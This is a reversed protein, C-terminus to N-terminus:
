QVRKSLSASRAVEIEYERIGRPDSSVLEWVLRVTRTVTQLSMRSQSEVAVWSRSLHSEVAVWTQRLSDLLVHSEIDGLFFHRSCPTLVLLCIGTEGHDDAKTILIGNIFELWDWLSVNLRIMRLTKIQDNWLLMDSIFYYHFWEFKIDIMFENLSDDM